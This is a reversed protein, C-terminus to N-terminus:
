DQTPVSPVNSSAAVMITEVMSLTGFPSASSMSATPLSLVEALVVADATVRRRCRGGVSRGSRRVEAAVGESGSGGPAVVLSRWRRGWRSLM